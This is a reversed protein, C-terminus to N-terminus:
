SLSQSHLIYNYRLTVMQWICLLRSFPRSTQLGGGSDPLTMIKWAFALKKRDSALLWFSFLIKKLYALILNLSTYATHQRFASTNEYPMMRHSTVARTWASGSINGRVLTLREIHVVCNSVSQIVSQYILLYTLLYSYKHPAYFLAVIRRLTVCVFVDQAASPFGWHRQRVSPYYGASLEV